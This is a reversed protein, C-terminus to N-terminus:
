PAVLRPRSFSPPHSRRRPFPVALPPCTLEMHWQLLLFANRVCVLVVSVSQFQLSRPLSPSAWDLHLLFHHPVRATLNAVERERPLPCGRQATGGRMSAEAICMLCGLPPRRPSCPAHIRIAFPAEACTSTVHSCLWSGVLGIALGAGPGCACSTTCVTCITVVCTCHGSWVATLPM